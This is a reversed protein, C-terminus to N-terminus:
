FSATELLVELFECEREPKNRTTNYYLKQEEPVSICYNKYLRERSIYFVRESSVFKHAVRKLKYGSLNLQFIFM